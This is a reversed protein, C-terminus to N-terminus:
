TMDEPVVVITIDDDSVENALKEPYLLWEAFSGYYNVELDYTQGLSGYDARGDPASPKQTEGNMLRDITRPKMTEGTENLVRAAIARSSLGADNIVIRVQYLLSGPENFRYGRDRHLYALNNTKMPNEWQQTPHKL